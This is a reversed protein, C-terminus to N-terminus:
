LSRAKPCLFCVFSLKGYSLTFFGEIFSGDVDTDIRAIAGGKSSTTKLDGTLVKLDELNGANKDSLFEITWSYGNQDDSSSRTVDVFGVSSLAELANQMESEDASSSIPRTEENQYFLSFHGTLLNANEETSTSVPLDSLHVELQPADKMSFPFTIMYTHGGDANPNSKTVLPAAHFNKMAGLIESLSSKTGFADATASIIGSYELSGGSKRTDLKLSYSLM